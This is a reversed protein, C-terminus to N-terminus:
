SAKAVSRTGGALWVALLTETVLSVLYAPVMMGFIGAAALMPVQQELFIAAMLPLATRLLISALQGQVALPTNAVLGSVILAATSCIWCVLVAIVATWIGAQGHSSSGWAALAALTVLMVLALVGCAAALKPRQSPSSSHSGGPNM